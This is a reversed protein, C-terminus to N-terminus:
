SDSGKTPVEEYGRAGQRALIFSGAACPDGGPICPPSDGVVQASVTGCQFIPPLAWLMGQFDPRGGLFGMGTGHSFAGKDLFGDNAGLSEM